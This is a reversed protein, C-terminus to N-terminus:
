APVQRLQPVATDCLASAVDAYQRVSPLLVSLGLAALTAYLILGLLLALDGLVICCKPLM